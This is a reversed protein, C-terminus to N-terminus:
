GSKDDSNSESELITAIRDRTTELTKLDAELKHKVDANPASHIKEELDSIDSKLEDYRQRLEEVSAAKDAKEFMIAEAQQAKDDVPTSTRMAPMAKWDAALARTNMFTPSVIEIGAAHLKDLMQERLRSRTSLVHKVEPLLGVVRYVVSFDTLDMIHVFPEQLDAALAAERLADQVQTRSVDYGISVEAWVLTGTAYTVRVPNTILFSNPLTMLDRDETQIEVHFLGRETVRGFHEGVTIFDGVQFSRVARIMLGAMANGIINTSSLAVAASVVIGILNLLQGQRTDNLPSILIIVVLLVALLFLQILQVRLTKDAQGAYQARLSRRVAFWVAGGVIIVIVMPLGPKLSSLIDSLM